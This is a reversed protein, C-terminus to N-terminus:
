LTNAAQKLYATLEPKSKPSNGKGSQRWLLSGLLPQPEGASVLELMSSARQPSSNMFAQEKAYLANHLLLAFNPWILGHRGGHAARGHVDELAQHSLQVRLPPVQEEVGQGVLQPVRVVVGM